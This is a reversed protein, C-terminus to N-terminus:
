QIKQFDTYYHVGYLKTGPGKRDGVEWKEREDDGIYTDHWRFYGNGLELEGWICHFLYSHKKVWKNPGGDYSTVYEEYYNDIYGDIVWAHGSSANSHHSSYILLPGHNKLNSSANSESFNVSSNLNYGAKNFTRIVTNVNTFPDIEFGATVSDLYTLNLYDKSGVKAFIQPLTVTSSNKIQSWNIQINELKTPWEHYSMIQTASLAMCGVKPSTATFYNPCGTNYPYDQHWNRVVLTLHPGIKETGENRIIPQFDHTTTDSANISSQAAVANLSEAELNDFFAALGKNGITDSINLSGENSIAQVSEMGPLTSLVAYGENDGYNVIYFLTDTEARTEASCIPVIDLLSASRTSTGYIKEKIADADALADALRSSTQVTQTDSPPPLVDDSACGVLLMLPTLLISKKM